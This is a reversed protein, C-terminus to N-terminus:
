SLEFMKEIAKLAGVRTDEEVHVEYANKLMADRVGELTIKKMYPCLICPTLFEKEPFEQQLTAGMDCETLILFKKADSEKIYNRIQSTSGSLDSAGAVTSTCELHSLVKVGTHEKKYITIQEPTFQEHVICAGNWKYITKGTDSLNDAMFKDPLFIIEKNPLAKLIKKVNSSTCCVDCEAKVAGSTNIYTVVAANPYQQRLKKVDKPTISDALSCGADLAPILVKATPNLIKATEAMFHVGCFIITEAKAEKAKKSLELSDGVFDAIYQIEPRQYYHALIIANKEQKLTLIEKAIRAYHKCVQTNYGARELKQLYANEDMREVWLPEEM